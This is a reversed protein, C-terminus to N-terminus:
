ADLGGGQDVGQEPLPGFPGFGGGGVTRGGGGGGFTGFTVSGSGGGINFQYTRGFPTDDQRAQTDQQGAHPHPQQQDDGGGLLGSFIGGLMGAISAGQGPPASQTRNHPIPPSEFPRTPPAPPLEYAPDPNVEPDLQVDAQASVSPSNFSVIEIFESNCSACQRVGDIQSTLSM